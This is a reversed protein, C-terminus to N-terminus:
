RALVEYSPDTRDRRSEDTAPDLPPTEQMTTLDTVFHRHDIAWRGDRQSWRDVYRGRAEIQTAKGAEPKTRLAVTVYSESAASDGDLEILINTIQHSHREMGAHAAWVWAVFEDGTGRFMDAGYDATGGQHWVARVMEADMRDLGRCYRYIVETIAQKDSLEQLTDSMNGGISERRLIYTM